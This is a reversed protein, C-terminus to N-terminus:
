GASLPRASKLFAAMWGAVLASDLPAELSALAGDVVAEPIIGRRSAVLAATFAPSMEPHGQFSLTRAEEYYLAAFPTHASAALVRAGHPVEIVQDQHSAAIAYGQAASGMWAPPDILGYAHRGVGWGKPSKEVRGGLAQAILQHGFCIGIQPVRRAAAARIFGELPEIWAHGEYVGASSGTILVAELRAPDPPAAGDCIPITEFSFEGDGLLEAFMAPYDRHAARLAQPPRGTELITLRM